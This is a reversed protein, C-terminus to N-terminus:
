LDFPAVLDHEEFLSRLDDIDTALLQAVRRASVHGDDIGWWLVEVFRKSFRKPIKADDNQARLLEDPLEQAAKGKVLGLNVLRWKLAIGSVGIKAASEKLWASLGSNEPVPTSAILAKILKEPMLLGAAFNEALQEVRKEGKETPHESELHKPPM